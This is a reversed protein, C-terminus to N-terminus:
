AFLAIVRSRARGILADFGLSRGPPDICYFAMIIILFFYTWPWEGPASYLGLWLNISMALGLLAGLRSWFGLILSIGIAAEIAFVLPGFLAIHPLVITGVLHGQLPVAAHAAEQKMWYELGGYHPPIKWLSQEWWMTGVLVRLVLLAIARLSRQAPLRAWALLAAVLACLLLLLYLVVFVEGRIALTLGGLRIEGLAANRAALFGSERLFVIADSLPNPPM